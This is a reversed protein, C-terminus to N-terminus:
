PEARASSALGPSLIPFTEGATKRHAWGALTGACKCWGLAQAAAFVRRWWVWGSARSSSNPLLSPHLSIASCPCLTGGPPPWCCVPCASLCSWCPQAPLALLLSARGFGTGQQSNRGSGQTYPFCQKGLSRLSVACSQSLRRACLTQVELVELCCGAAGKLGAVAVHWVNGRNGVYSPPQLCM